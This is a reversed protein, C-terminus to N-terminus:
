KQNEVPEPAPLLPILQLHMGIANAVNQMMRAHKACVGAEDQGPWTYRFATPEQCDQQSCKTLDSM